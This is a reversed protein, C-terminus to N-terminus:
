PHGAAAPGATLALTNDLQQWVGTPGTGIRYWQWLTNDTARIYVNVRYDVQTASPAGIGARGLDYWTSSWGGAATWSLQGIKDTPALTAFVEIQGPGGSAATPSSALTGGRRTWGTWEGSVYSKQWLANDTGRAFLDIRNLSAVAAPTGVITTSDPADQSVWSTTWKVDPWYAPLDNQGPTQQFTKQYVKGDTSRIFVDIRDRGLSAAAPSATLTGGLSTWTGWAGNKYTNTWLADDAGRVFVDTGGPSSVVAPEGKVSGPGTSGAASLSVTQWASWTSSNWTKTSLGTATPVVVTDPWQEATGTLKLLVSQHPALTFSQSGVSALTGLNSGTYLNQVTATGNLGLNQTTFAYTQSSTSRNLLLVARTGATALQKSWVQVKGNDLVKQGQHNASDQAVAIVSQNGVIGATATDLGTLDSALVLPAGQVAWMGFYSQQENPTLGWQTTTDTGHTQQRGTVPNNGFGPGVMLYDPDNYQGTAHNSPHDNLDFNGTVQSFNVWTSGGNSPTGWGVNGSLDRGTRWARGASGGWVWPGDPSGAGWQCMDLAIPHALGASTKANAALSGWDKYDAMVTSYKTPTGGCHDLKLFDFGWDAFTTLDRAEHDGSGSMGGCGRTGTDTYMGAKLGLEHIYNTLDKMTNLARAPVTSGNSLTVARTQAGTLFGTKTTLTGTADRGAGNDPGWGDDIGIDRYGLDALSKHGGSDDIPLNANPTAMGAAQDAISKASISTGYFFWSNWGMPPATAGYVGPPVMARAPTPISVATVTLSGAVLVGASLVLSSIRRVPRRPSGAITLGPSGSRVSAPFM